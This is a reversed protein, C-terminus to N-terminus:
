DVRITGDVLEAAMVYHEAIAADLGAAALWVWEGPLLQKILM